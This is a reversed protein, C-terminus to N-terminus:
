AEDKLKGESLRKELNQRKKTESIKRKTEDSHKKDWFPNGEGIYIKKRTDSMKKKAAETHGIGYLHHREGATKGIRNQSMKQKSEDSHKRGYFHHGEGKVANKSEENWRSGLSSGAVPSLNYGKDPNCVDLHDLWYQERGLLYDLDGEVHEILHFTFNHEGHKNWSRQLPANSGIDHQLCYLHAKLRKTISQGKESKSASGIYCKGNVENRICYVGQVDAYDEISTIQEM